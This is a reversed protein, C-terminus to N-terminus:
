KGFIEAQVFDELGWKWAKKWIRNMMEDLEAQRTGLEADKKLEKIDSRIQVEAIEKDTLIGNDDEPETDGKDQEWEEQTGLLDEPKSDITKQLDKISTM